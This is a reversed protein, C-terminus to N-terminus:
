ADSMPSLELVACGFHRIIPNRPRIKHGRDEHVPVSPLEGPGGRGAPFITEVARGPKQRVDEKRPPGVDRKCAFASPPDSGVLGGSPPNQARGHGDGHYCDNCTSHM